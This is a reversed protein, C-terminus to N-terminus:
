AGEEGDRAPGQGPEMVTAEVDRADDGEQRRDRDGGGDSGRDRLRNLATGFAARNRTQSGVGSNTSGPRQAGNSRQEEIRTKVIWGIFSEDWNHSHAHDARKRSIFGQTELILRAPQIDPRVKRARDLLAEGPQWDPPLLQARGASLSHEEQDNTTTTPRQYNSEGRSFGDTEALDNFDGSEPEDQPDRSVGRSSTKRVEQAGEQVHRSPPSSGATRREQARRTHSKGAEYGAESAQEVRARAKSLERDARENSLWKGDPSVILKRKEILGALATKLTRWHTGKCAKTFLELDNPMRGGASYIKNLAINYVGHEEVSLEGFTGAIYEDPSWDVRRIKSM